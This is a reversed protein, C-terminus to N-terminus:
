ADQGWGLFVVISQYMTSFKPRITPPLEGAAIPVDKLDRHEVILMVNGHSHTMDAGVIRTQVPFGLATILTDPTITVRAFGM